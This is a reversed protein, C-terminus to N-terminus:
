HIIRRGVDLDRGKLHKVLIICTNKVGGMNGVHGGM